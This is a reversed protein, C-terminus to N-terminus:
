TRFSFSREMKGDDSSRTKECVIDGVGARSWGKRTVKCMEQKRREEKRTRVTEIMIEM